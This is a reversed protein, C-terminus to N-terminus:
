LMLQQSEHIGEEPVVLDFHWQMILLLHCEDSIPPEMAILDHRESQFIGSCGVLLKDVLYEFILDVIIHLDVHIVHEDFALGHQLM